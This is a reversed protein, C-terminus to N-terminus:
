GGCPLSGGVIGAIVKIIAIASMMVFMGILGWLMHRKGDEKKSSEQSLGWIFETLGFIFVLLGVSFILALAPNILASTLKGVIDCTAASNAAAATLTDM